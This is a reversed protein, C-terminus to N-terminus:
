HKTWETLEKINYFVPINKEKAFEIENLTGKSSQWDGIVLMADSVELWALSYDYFDKITLKHQRDMLVYHYDLWLCFPAFGEKFMKTSIDIGEGINDLVDMVNDASYPGAIYIRKM